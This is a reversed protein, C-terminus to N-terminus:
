SEEDDAGSRRKRNAGFHSRQPKACGRQMWAEIAKGYFRLLRGPLQAHPIRDRRAYRRVTRTSVRLYKATEELTWWRDLDDM